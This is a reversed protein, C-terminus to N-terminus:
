WYYPYVFVGYANTNTATNTATQDVIVDHMVLNGDGKVAPGAVALNAALGNFQNNVIGQDGEGGRVAAREELSLEKAIALDKITLHM